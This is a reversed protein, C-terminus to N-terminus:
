AGIQRLISQYTITEDRALLFAKSLITSLLRDGEFPLFVGAGQPGPKARRDEVICLYRGDPEMTINASGLHIRYTRLTGRVVLHREDLECRDAIALKPLLEALFARRAEASEALEATNFARWYDAAEGRRWQSPHEAGAGGDLWVPDHGISSVGVLLDVDRMVESLVVPPVDRLPVTEAALALHRGGDRRWDGGDALRRFRVRDTGIFLYALSDSIEDDGGAAETWFEAALGHAPIKIHTPEDNPVDASMRLRVSWGRLRALAASQHQRLIHGAFRNSYARVVEEGV